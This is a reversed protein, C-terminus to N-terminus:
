LDMMERIEAPLDEQTTIQPGDYNRLIEYVRGRSVSDLLPIEQAILLMM